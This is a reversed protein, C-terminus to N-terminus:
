VGKRKNLGNFRPSGWITLNSLSNCLLGRKLLIHAMTFDLLQEIPFELKSLYHYNVGRGCPATASHATRCAKPRTTGPEFGTDTETKEKKKRNEKTVQGCQDIAVQCIETDDVTFTSNAQNHKRFLALQRNQWYFYHDIDWISNTIIFDMSSQWLRVWFVFRSAITLSREWFESVLLESTQLRNQLSRRYAAGTYAGGSGIYVHLTAMSTTFWYHSCPFWAKAMIRVDINCLFKMKVIDCM